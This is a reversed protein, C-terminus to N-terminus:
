RMRKFIGDVFWNSPDDDKSEYLSVQKKWSYSSWFGFDRGGRLYSVVLFGYRVILIDTWPGFTGSIWVPIELELTVKVKQTISMM